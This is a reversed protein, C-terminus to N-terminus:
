WEALCSLCKFATMSALVTSNPPFQTRASTQTWTAQTPPIREIEKDALFESIDTEIMCQSGNHHSHNPQHSALVDTNTLLLAPSTELEINTPRKKGVTAQCSPNGAM